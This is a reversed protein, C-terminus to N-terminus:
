NIGNKKEKTDIVILYLITYLAYRDIFYQFAYFMFGTYFEFDSAAMVALTYIIDFAIMIILLVLGMTKFIKKPYNKHIVLIWLLIFTCVYYVFNSISYIVDYIKLYGEENYNDIRYGIVDWTGKIYYLLIISFLGMIIFLMIRIYNKASKKRKIGCNPCQKAKDSIEKGCEICKILAM